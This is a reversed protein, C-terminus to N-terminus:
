NKIIRKTINKNNSNLTFIYVGKKYNSLDINGLRTNIIQKEILVGSVDYVAIVANDTINDTLSYNIVGNTPNPYLSLANEDIEDVGASVLLGGRYNQLVTRMLNAQDATFSNQCIDSSYDMYNEVMDPMDSTGSGCTNRTKDCNQPSESGALPTDTLGDDTSCNGDGWIHRLGLYHGVEHVTTKGKLNTGSLNGFPGFARYDIVVGDDSAGSSSGSPWGPAGAPPYAYGALVAGGPIPQLNAVWINLFASSNWANSGGTNSHKVADYLSNGNFNFDSSTEVREVGALVFNINPNGAIPQFISRLNTTDANKRQFCENLIRLQEDIIYQNHNEANQKWVIHVVVPITLTSRNDRNTQNSAIEALQNYWADYDNKYGTHNHEMVSEVLKYDNVFPSGELAFDSTTQSKISLALVFFVGLLITKKM